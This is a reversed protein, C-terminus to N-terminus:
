RSSGIWVSFNAHIWSGPVLSTLRSFNQHREIAESVTTAEVGPERQLADYFRRLFERGSQPYYEWANEGDLIIPVLADRGASVIGQCNEHIRHLFDAASKLSPLLLTGIGERLEDFDKKIRGITGTFSVGM